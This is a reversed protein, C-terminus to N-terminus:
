FDRRYESFQYQFVCTCDRLIIFIQNVCDGTVLKLFFVSQCDGADRNHCLIIDGTQQCIKLGCMGIDFQLNFFGFGSVDAGPEFVVFAIKNEGAFFIKIRGSLTKGEVIVTQCCNNGSIM